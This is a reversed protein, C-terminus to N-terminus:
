TGERPHLNCRSQKASATITNKNWSHSVNVSDWYFLWYASLPAWFVYLLQQCHSSHGEQLRESSLWEWWSATREWKTIADTYICCGIRLYPIPSHSHPFSLKVAKGWTPPGCIFSPDKGWSVKPTLCEMNLARQIIKHVLKHSRQM